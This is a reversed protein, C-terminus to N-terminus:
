GRDGFAPISCFRRGYSWKGTYDKYCYIVSGRLGSCISAITLTKARTRRQVRKM